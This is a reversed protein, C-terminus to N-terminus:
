HHSAKQLRSATVGFGPENSIGFEPPAYQLAQGLVTEGNRDDDGEFLRMKM